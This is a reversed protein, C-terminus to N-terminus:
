ILELVGPIYFFRNNLSTYGKIILLGADAHKKIFTFPINTRKSKFPFPISYVKLTSKLLAYVGDHNCLIGPWTFKNRWLGIFRNIYPQEISLKINGSFQMYQYWSNKHAWKAYGLGTSLVNTETPLVSENQFLLLPLLV